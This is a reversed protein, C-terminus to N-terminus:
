PQRRVRLLMVWDSSISRPLAVGHTSQSIFSRGVHDAGVADRREDHAEDEDPDAEREEEHRRDVAAAEDPEHESAQEYGCAARAEIKQKM